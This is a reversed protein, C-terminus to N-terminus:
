HSFGLLVAPRVAAYVCHIQKYVSNEQSVYVLRIGQTLFLADNEIDNNDLRLKSFAKFKRWNDPERIGAFATKLYIELRLIEALLVVCAQGIDNSPKARRM